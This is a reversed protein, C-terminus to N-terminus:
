RENTGSASALTEHEVARNGQQSADIFIEANEPPRIV